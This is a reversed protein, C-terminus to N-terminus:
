LGLERDVAQRHNFTQQRRLDHRDSPGHSSGIMDTGTRSRLVQHLSGRQNQNASRGGRGRAM